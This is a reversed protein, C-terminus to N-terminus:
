TELGEHQMSAMGTTCGGGGPLLVSSLSVCRLAVSTVGGQPIHVVALCLWSHMDAKKLDYRCM